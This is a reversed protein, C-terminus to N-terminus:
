DSTAEQLARHVVRLVRAESAGARIMVKVSEILSNARAVPGGDEGGPLGDGSTGNEQAPAAQPGQAGQGGSEGGGTRGRASGNESKGSPDRGLIEDAGTQGEPGSEGFLDPDLEAAEENKAEQSIRDIDKHRLEGNEEFYAACRKQTAAEANGVRRAAGPAIEEERVGKIIPDPALALRLAKKQRQPSIGFAKLEEETYGSERLRLVETAERLPSPARSINETLAILPAMGEAEKPIIVAPIREIDSEKAQKVRREGCVVEYAVGREEYDSPSLARLTVSSYFPLREISRRLRADSGSALPDAIADVPVKEQRLDETSTDVDFSLQKEEASDTQSM